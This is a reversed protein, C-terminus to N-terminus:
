EIDHISQTVYDVIICFLLVFLLTLTILTPSFAILWPMTSLVGTSKLLVLIITFINLAGIDKYRMLLIRSSKSGAGIIQNTLEEDTVGHVPFVFNNVTPRLEKSKDIAEKTRIDLHNMFM